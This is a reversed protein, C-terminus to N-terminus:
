GGEREMKQEAAAVLSTFARLALAAEATIPGAGTERANVTKRTVGLREALQAQTLGLAERISRYDAPTM